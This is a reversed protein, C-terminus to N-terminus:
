STLGEEEVKERAKLLACRFCVRRFCNSRHIMDGVKGREEPGYEVLSRRKCDLCRVTICGPKSSVERVRICQHQHAQSVPYKSRYAQRETARNPKM